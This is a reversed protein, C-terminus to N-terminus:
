TVGAGGSDALVIRLIQDDDAHPTGRGDKNSTTVWLTNDPAVVATRLRGYRQVLAPRPAGLVGGAGTLETLYLREGKLCAAVLTNGVIADGSCSAEDPRWTVLPDTYRTDHATGEVAPWGYNRGPRIVNIEDWRDQGFETAYLTKAPSWALGQVNRHGYSWVLSNPFPNGPAPKGDATMRLIKGGLSTLRQADGRVTGDGTGAYLYGDPGFALRGGNHVGAAPIGTVIPRPPSGLVLRAIRNDRATTYYVFATRDSAYRPSVAIGLLGGEGRAVAETITQVPTVTLGSPGRGPGVKLIRRSDRETVLASGDPLFAIGWPVALHRAIVSIASQGEAGASASASPPPLRPPAGSEDPPPQGFTCGALLTAALAAGAAARTARRRTVTRTPRHRDAARTGRRGAVGPAVRRYGALIVAGLRAPATM